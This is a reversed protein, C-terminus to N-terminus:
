RAFSRRALRRAALARGLLAYLVCWEVGLNLVAADDPHVLLRLIAFLRSRWSPALRMTYAAARLDDPVDWLSHEASEKVERLAARMAHTALPAVAKRQREDIALTARGLLQEQLLLSLLFPRDCGLAQAQELALRVRNPGQREFVRGIDALWKLRFFAHGAAHCCLYIVLDAAGLGRLARNAAPVMVSRALLQEFRVDMLYPNALLRHHLEVKL